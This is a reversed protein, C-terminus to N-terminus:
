LVRGLAPTGWLYHAVSIVVLIVLLWNPWRRLGFATLLLLPLTFDLTYRPGFQVWGTGMLFVIPVNVLLIAGLLVWTDGRRWHKFMGWLAAFFVPTLLFLSGGLWTEDRIPFPYALYQYFLNKPLYYINFAGYLQYEEVFFGAMQHYPLGVELPNGFRVWNYLALSGIAMLVPLVGLASYAVLQKRAVQGHTRLLYYAPWLGTFALGNRTLLAMALALGTCFFAPGGRLRLAALYTLGVCAFGVTQGTFWVRGFPALTVQVTGLAFCLVLLARQLRTLRLVGRVVAQQLVMAVLAVNLAAVGLTFLVDSFGVGFLAVFPMLWIAPLPAWYLYYKDGFFILDNLIPPLVRLHLQGHLFADALYNYYAVPSTTQLPGRQLALATYVGLALLMNGLPHEWLRLM